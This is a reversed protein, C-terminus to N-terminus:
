EDGPSGPAVLSISKNQRRVKNSPKKTVKQKSIGTKMKEGERYSLVGVVQTEEGDM